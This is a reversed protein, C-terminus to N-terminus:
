VWHHLQSASRKDEAPLMLSGFGSVTEAVAKESHSKGVKSSLSTPVLRPEVANANIISTTPAAQAEHTSQIAGATRAIGAPGNPFLPGTPQCTAADVPELSLAMQSVRMRELIIKQRAVDARLSDMNVKSVRSKDANEDKITASM